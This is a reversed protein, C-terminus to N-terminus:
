GSCGSCPEYRTAEGCYMKCRPKKVISMLMQVALLKENEDKNTNINVESKEISYLNTQKVLM